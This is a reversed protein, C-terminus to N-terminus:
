ATRLAFIKVVGSFGTTDTRLRIVGGGIDVARADKGTSCSCFDNLALGTLAFDQVGGSAPVIASNHYVIAPANNISITGRGLRLTNVATNDRVLLAPAFLPVDNSAACPLWHEIESDDALASFYEATTVYCLAAGSTITLIIGRLYYYNIGSGGFPISFKTSKNPVFLMTGADAIIETASGPSGLILEIKVSAPSYGSYPTIVIEGAAYTFAFGVQGVDVWRVTVTGVQNAPVSVVSSGSDFLATRPDQLTFPDTINPSCVVSSGRANVGFFRDIVASILAKSGSSFSNAFYGQIKGDLYVDSSNQVAMSGLGIAGRAAAGDVATRLAGGITSEAPVAGAVGREGQIGQPGLDGKEGKAGIRKVSGDVKKIYIEGDAANVAIQALDLKSPDPVLGPTVGLTNTRSM